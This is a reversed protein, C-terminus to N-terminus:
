CADDEHHPRTDARKLGRCQEAHRGREAARQGTMAVRRSPGLVRARVVSRRDAM